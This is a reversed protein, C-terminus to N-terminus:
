TFDIDHLKQVLLDCWTSVGGQHFPYTGETTLLVKLKSM